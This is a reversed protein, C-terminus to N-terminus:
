QHIDVGVFLWMQVYGIDEFGAAERRWGKTKWHEELVPHRTKQTETLCDRKYARRRRFFSHGGWEHM